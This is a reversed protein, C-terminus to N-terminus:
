SFSRRCEIVDRYKPRWSADSAMTISISPNTTPNGSDGTVNATDSFTHTHNNNAATLGGSLVSQTGGSETSTTGSVTVQYSGDGHKHNPLSATASLGSITWSGGSGGGTGSVFRLLRDDSSTQQTWGTPASAQAFIMDVNGTGFVSEFASAIASSVADVYTKLPDGINDLHKQWTVVNNAGGSSGTDTGPVANYGSISPATYPNTV